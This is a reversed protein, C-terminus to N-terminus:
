SGKDENSRSVYRIRPEIVGHTPMEVGWPFPPDKSREFQYIFLRPFNRRDYSRGLRFSISNQSALFLHIIEVGKDQLTRVVESFQQALRIQKKISWHNDFNRDNLTLEIAHLDGAARLTDELCVKYSVSVACILEKTGRGLSSIGNVEFQGGDDLEDLQRWANFNRDWDVIEIAVEDDLLMGALFAFPVPAIGGYIISTESPDTRHLRAELDTEIKKTKELAFEPDPSGVNRNPLRLDILMEEVRRLRAQVFKADRLPSDPKRGLGRHEITLIKEKELRSTEKKDERILLVIGLAILFVGLLFGMFDLSGISLMGHFLDNGFSLNWVIRITPSGAAFGIGASFVKNGTSRPRILWSVYRGLIEIIRERM